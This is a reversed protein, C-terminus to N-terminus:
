NSLRTKFFSKLKGNDIEECDYTEAWPAEEHTLNRLKSASFQGYVTLVEDIVEMSDIPIKNIDFDKSIPLAEGKFKKYMSYIERVVPGHDWHEIKENFLPIDIIALHFGQCYYLLKQLKLHSILDGEDKDCKNLIYEAVIKATVM